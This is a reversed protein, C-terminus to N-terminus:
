LKNIRDSASDFDAKEKLEESVSKYEKVAARSAERGLDDIQREFSKEGHKAVKIGKKFMKSPKGAKKSVFGEPHELTFVIQQKGNKTERVDVNLNNAGDINYVAKLYELAGVVKRRDKPSNEMVNNAEKKSGNKVTEKIKEEVEPEMYVAAGFTQTSRIPSIRM